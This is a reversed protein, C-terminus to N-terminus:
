FSKQEIRQGMPQELTYQKGTMYKHNKKMKMRNNIKLKM